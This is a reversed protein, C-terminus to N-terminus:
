RPIDCNNAEWSWGQYESDLRGNRQCSVQESLFPCQVEEYFPNETPKYVWKGEFVNCDGKVKEIELLKFPELLESTNGNTTSSISNTTVNRINLLPVNNRNNGLYLTLFFCSIFSALTCLKWKHNVTTAIEM